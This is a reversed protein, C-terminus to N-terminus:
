AAKRDQTPRPPLTAHPEPGIATTSAGADQASRGPQRFALRPQIIFKFALATAVTVAATIVADLWRFSSWEFIIGYQVVASLGLSGFLILAPVYLTGVLFDGAWSPTKPNATGLLTVGYILTAISIGVAGLILLM